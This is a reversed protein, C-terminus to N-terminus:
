IEGEYFSIAKRMYLDFDTPTIEEKFEERLEEFIDSIYMGFFLLFNRRAKYDSSTITMEEIVNDIWIYYCECHFIKKSKIYEADERSENCFPCKWEEPVEKVVESNDDQLITNLRGTLRALIQDEVSIRISFDGFGSMVNVLRSVIGSSCVGASEALEEILREKMGEAYENTIIYSWLKVLISMLSLQQVGYIARDMEIRRLTISVKGEKNYLPLNKIERKVFEYDIYKDKSLRFTEVKSLIEVGEKTSEQVAKKHVNQKNDYINTSSGGLKEIIKSAKARMEENKSYQEVIDAADARMNYEVAENEAFRLLTESVGDDEYHRLLLQGSLIRYSVDNSVNWFFLLLLKEQFYKFNNDMEANKKDLETRDEPKDYDLINAKRAYKWDLINNEKIREFVNDLSLIVRYRYETELSSNSIIKGLFRLSEENFETSRMLINISYLRKPTDLTEGETLVYELAEYGKRKGSVAFNNAVELRLNIDIEKAFSIKYLYEEAAYVGAMNYIGVIRNIVEVTEDKYKGYYIQLAQIRKELPISLDIIIEYMNDPTIQIDRTENEEDLLLDLLTSAM